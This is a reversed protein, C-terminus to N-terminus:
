VISITKQKNRYHNRMVGPVYKSVIIAIMIFGLSVLHLYIAWSFYYNIVGNIVFVNMWVLAIYKNIEYFPFHQRKEGSLSQGAYKMAFLKKVILSGLAIVALMAYCFSAPYHSLLTLWNFYYNLFIFFFNFLNCITIPEGQLILSRNVIVIFVLLLCLCVFKTQVSLATHMVYSYLGWHIFSLVVKLLNNM